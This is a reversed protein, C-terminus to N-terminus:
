KKEKQKDEHGKREKRKLRMAPLAIHKAYCEDCYTETKGSKRLITHMVYESRGCIKCYLDKKAM